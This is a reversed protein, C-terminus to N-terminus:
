YLRFQRDIFRPIFILLFCVADSLLHHAHGLRLWLAIAAAPAGFTLRLLRALFM